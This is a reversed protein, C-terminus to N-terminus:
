RLYEAISLQSLRTVALYSAELASRDRALRSLAAALDTDEIDSVMEDFYVQDAKQVEVIAELRDRKAGLDGRLDALREIATTLNDLASELDGTDNALHAQRALGLAGVLWEFASNSAPIGYALEVGEEAQVVLELDDGAYYLSSDATTPPPDPISVPRSDTRSGAFLYRGDLRTNLRAEVEELMSELEADLPVDEGIGDNLRQVILTRAREAIRGLSELAGDMAQMRDIVHENQRIHGANLSRDFRTSLLRPVEAAMRDFSREQKGSAIAMQTERIRGQTTQLAQMLLAQQAVDGVRTTM